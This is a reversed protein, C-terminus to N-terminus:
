RVYGTEASIVINFVETPSGKVQVTLNAFAQQGVGYSPVGAADFFFTTGGGVSIGSAPAECAWSSSQDCNTRTASKGSNAGGVNTVRNPISCQADYCLAVSKGDLQVFVSRNQAIALKQGFRVLSRVQDAYSRADFTSKTFFRPAAVAGLVGVVVMVTILEVLTFGFQRLHGLM